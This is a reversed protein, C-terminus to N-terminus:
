LSYISPVYVKEPICCPINCLQQSTARLPGQLLLVFPIDILVMIGSYTNSPLFSFTKSYLLRSEPWQNIAKGWCCGFWLDAGWNNSWIYAKHVFIAASLSSIFWNPLDLPDLPLSIVQQTKYRCSFVGISLNSGSGLFLSILAFVCEETCSFTRSNCSVFVRSVPCNFSFLYTFKLPWKAMMDKYLRNLLTHLGLLGVLCECKRAMFGTAPKESYWWDDEITNITHGIGM